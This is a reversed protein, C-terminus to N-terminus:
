RNISKTIIDADYTCGTIMKIVFAIHLQFSDVSYIGNHDVNMCADAVATALSYKDVVPLYDKFDILKFAKDPDIIYKEKLEAIKM